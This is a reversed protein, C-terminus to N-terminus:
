FWIGLKGGIITAKSAPQFVPVEDAMDSRGYDLTEAFAALFLWGSKLGAEGYVTTKGKPNLDVSDPGGVNSMDVEITDDVPLRAEVRGFWKGGPGAATEVACGVIGYVSAWSEEYGYRGLENDSLSTDLSRQWGRTGIGGYVKFAAQDGPNLSAALHAELKLGTYATTSRAPVTRGDEMVLEGTYDLDGATFEGIGEFALPAFALDLEGGAGFVPGSEKVVQRGEFTEKWEYQEALGYLRFSLPSAQRPAYQAWVTGGSVLLVAAMRMMSKM